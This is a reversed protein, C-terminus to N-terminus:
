IKSTNESYARLAPHIRSVSGLRLFKLKKAMLRVLINDVASHTHCTILVTKNLLLLLQVLAVLTQTKGTGPLGKLLMYNECALAQLVAQRQPKNLSALIQQGSKMITDPLSKSFVPMSREIIIKRLREASERNELLVGINTLNFVMQTQSEYRDLHFQQDFFM